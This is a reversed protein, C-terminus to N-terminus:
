FVGVGCDYQLNRLLKLGGKGTPSARVIDDEEDASIQQTLHKCAYPPPPALETNM